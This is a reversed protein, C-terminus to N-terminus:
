PTTCHVFVNPLVRTFRYHLTPWTKSEKRTPFTVMRTGDDFQEPKLAALYFLEPFTAENDDWTPTEVQFSLFNL